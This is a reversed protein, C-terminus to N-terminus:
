GKRKILLLGNRSGPVAGKIILINEDPRVDLITLNKTTVRANGMHGPMGKGKIVRSPYSSSGISGPVRHCMSGHTDGGGHFGWRKIVGQFGRGKSTGVVDVKDGIQFDEINIEQGVVYNGLDEDEVAFERVHHFCGKGAKKCHGAEAKSLRAEKQELFGVQVAEYGDKKLTKKQLVICPGAEVVTVGVSRGDELFLRSMGRKRGIIGQIM